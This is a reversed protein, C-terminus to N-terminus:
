FFTIPITEDITAMALTVKQYNFYNGMCFFNPLVTTRMASYQTALYVCLLIGSNGVQEKERFHHEEPYYILYNPSLNRLFGACYRKKAIALNMQIVDNSAM